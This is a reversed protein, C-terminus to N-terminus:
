AGAAAGGRGRDASAPGLVVRPRRGRLREMAIYPVDAPPGGVVLVRVVHPSRISAALRSERFFRALADDDHVADQKLVKIAADEGKPGLAKYIEGMGGRGLLHELRFGGLVGGTFRGRGGIRAVRRFDERAEELVADRQAVARTVVRLQELAEALRSRAERCIAYIALFIAELLVLMALVQLDSLGSLSVIGDDPLVGRLQLAVMLATGAGVVAYSALAVRRHRSIGVIFLGLVQAVAAVSLTGFFYMVLQLGVFSAPWLIGLSRAHFREPRASVYFLGFNSVAHIVLGAAFLGRSLPTGGFLPLALAGLANVGFGSLGLLRTRTREEEDLADGPTVIASAATDGSPAFPHVDSSSVPAAVRTPPLEESSEHRSTAEGDDEAKM